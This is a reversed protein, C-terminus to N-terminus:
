RQMVLEDGAGLGCGQESEYSVPKKCMNRPRCAFMGRMLRVMFSVVSEISQRVRDCTCCAPSVKGM